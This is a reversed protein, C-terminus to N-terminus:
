SVRVVSDKKQSNLLAKALLSIRWVYLVSLDMVTNVFERCKDVNQLQYIWYLGDWEIEQFDM